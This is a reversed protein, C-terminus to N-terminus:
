KSQEGFVFDSLEKVTKFYYDAHENMFEAVEPLLGHSWGAAAFDVGCAHAMDYGLRLDDVMLCDEPELGLKEFIQELPYTSPKRQERPLEWGYVLDLEVGNERYHREIEARESLSVVCVYGGSAKFRKVMDIFGDYFAPTKDKIYDKWIEYEREMEKETFGLEDVCLEYFGPDYCKRTFEALDYERADPRLEEMILRFSPYHLEPTSKVATDDHDLVLCKYRM